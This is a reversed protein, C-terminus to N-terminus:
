SNLILFAPMMQASNAELGWLEFAQKRIMDFLHKNERGGLSCGTERCEWRQVATRITSTSNIDFPHNPPFRNSAPPPCQLPPAALIWHRCGIGLAGGPSVIGRRDM